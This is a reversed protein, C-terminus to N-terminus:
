VYCYRVIAVDQSAFAKIARDHGSNSRGNVAGQVIPVDELHPVSQSWPEELTSKLLM